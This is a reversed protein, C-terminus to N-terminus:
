FVQYEFPVEQPTDAGFFLWASVALYIGLAALLTWKHKKILEIVIKRRAKGTLRQRMRRVAL